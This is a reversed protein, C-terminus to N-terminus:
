AFLGLTSVISNLFFYEFLQGPQVSILFGREPRDDDSEFRLRISNDTSYIPEGSHDTIYCIRLLTQAWSM